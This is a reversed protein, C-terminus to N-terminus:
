PLRGHVLAEMMQHGPAVVLGSKQAAAESYELAAEEAVFEGGSSALVFPVPDKTHTMKVVPTPHDPLLLVRYEGLADLGNM